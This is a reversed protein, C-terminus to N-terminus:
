RGRGPFRKTPVPLQARRPTRAPPRSRLKFHMRQPTCAPPRSRLKFHTQQPTCAPPRSWLKHSAAAAKKLRCTSGSSVQFKRIIFVSEATNPSLGHSHQVSFQICSTANSFKTSRASDRTSFAVFNWSYRRCVHKNLEEFRDQEKANWCTYTTNWSEL